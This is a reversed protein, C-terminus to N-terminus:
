LCSLNMEVACPLQDTDRIDSYSPL